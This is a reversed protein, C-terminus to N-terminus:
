WLPRIPVGGDSADRRVGPHRAFEPSEPIDRESFHGLLRDPNQHDYVNILRENM